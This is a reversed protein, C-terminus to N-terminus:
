AGRRRIVKLAERMTLPSLQAAYEHCFAQVEDPARYSRERLAWGMGKRIFFESAVAGNGISPLVCDYLLVPDFDDKLRRQALMAARRLWMSDGRAWRRLLPKMTGAHRQLLVALANGSLEDCHDWWAGGAIMLEIVPLLSLDLLRAHPGIRALEAAAYREERHTAEQWLAQVTAALGASDHCPHAKVAAAQLQRRLPAAIGFFPMASKMYAQMPGAQAADAHAVFAACLTAILERNAAM